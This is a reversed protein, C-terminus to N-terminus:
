ICPIQNPAQHMLCVSSVYQNLLSVYIFVKMYTIHILHQFTYKLYNRENYVNIYYFQLLTEIYKYLTYTCKNKKKIQSM